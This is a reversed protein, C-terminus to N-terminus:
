KKSRYDFAESFHYNNANQKDILIKERELKKEEDQNQYFFFLYRHYM